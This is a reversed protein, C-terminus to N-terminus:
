RAPSRARARAGGRAPRVVGRAATSTRPWPRGSRRLVARLSSCCRRALLLSSRGVAVRARPGRGARACTAGARTPPRGGRRARAAARAAPVRGVRPVDRRRARVGLRRRRGLVLATALAPGAFEAVTEITGTAASPRSSRTRPCPRRCCAPRRRASSRRPACGFLAEIVVIHWIEVAGTFILAALLAHLAFRVLDTAIMVRHRPLRDALVGGLLIFGVLPLAHAALVLGVDTPTGIETVYLALAVFVIRDGITARARGSSCTASTGTVCCRCVRRTQLGGRHRSPWGRAGSAGPTRVRAPDSRRSDPLRGRRHGQRADGDPQRRRRLRRHLRTRQAGPVVTRRPRRASGSPWAGAAAHLPVVRARRLRDAGHRCTACSRSARTRTSTRSWWRGKVEQQAPTGDANVETTRIGSATMSPAGQCRSRAAAAPPSVTMRAHLDVLEEVRPLARPGAAIRARNSGEARSPNWYSSGSVARAAARAHPAPAACAPATPPTARRARSSSRALPQVPPVNAHAGHLSSPVWRPASPPM